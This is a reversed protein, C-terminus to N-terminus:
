LSNKGNFTVQQLEDKIRKDPLFSLRIEKINKSSVKDPADVPKVKAHLRFSGLNDLKM